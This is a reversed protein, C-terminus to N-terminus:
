QDRWVGYLKTPPPAPSQKKDVTKERAKAMAIQRLQDVDRRLDIIEKKLSMVWMMFLSVIICMVLVQISALM